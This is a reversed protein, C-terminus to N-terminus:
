RRPRGPTWSTPIARSGAPSAASSRRTARRARRDVSRDAAAVRGPRAARRLRDRRGRAGSVVGPVARRLVAAPQHVLRREAREGLERLARAHVAPALAARPRAGAARRPVRHTKIFWQRSTVIELPRDGKEYFKVAHTIPRPDGILEGSEGCSSSSTRGRRRRGVPGRARRLTAAGAGADM